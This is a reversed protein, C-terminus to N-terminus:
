NDNNIYSECSYLPVSPWYQRDNTDLNEQRNSEENRLNYRLKKPKLLILTLFFTVVNAIIATLLLSYIILINRSIIDFFSHFNSELNEVGFNNIMKGLEILAKFGQSELGRTDRELEECSSFVVLFLIIVSAYSKM